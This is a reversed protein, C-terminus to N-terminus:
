NDPVNFLGYSSIFVITVQPLAQQTRLLGCVRKQYANFKDEAAAWHEDETKKTYSDELQGFIIGYWSSLEKLIVESVL